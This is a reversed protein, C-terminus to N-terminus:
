PKVAKMARVEFILRSNTTLSCAEELADDHAKIIAAAVQEGWACWDCGLEGSETCPGFIELAIREADARTMPAEGPSRHDTM